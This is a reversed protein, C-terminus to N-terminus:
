KLVWRIQAKWPTEVKRGKAAAPSYTWRTACVVSALDLRESGSSKEVAVNKITGATTIVFSLTATGQEGLRQSIAPYDSMCLHPLGNPRPATVGQPRPEAQAFNASHLMSAFATCLAVTAAVLSLNGAYQLAERWRPGAAESAKTFLPGLVRRHFSPVLYPLAGLCILTALRNVATMETGGALRHQLVFGLALWSLIQPILPLAVLLCLFRCRTWVSRLSVFHGLQVWLFVVLLTWMLLNGNPLGAASADSGFGFLLATYRIEALAPVFGLVGIIFVLGLKFIGFILRGRTEDDSREPGTFECGGGSPTARKGRRAVAALVILLKRLLYIGAAAALAMAIQPMLWAASM